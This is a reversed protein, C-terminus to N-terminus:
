AVEVVRVMGPLWVGLRINQAIRREAGRRTRYECADTAFTTFGGGRAVYADAGGSRFAVTRSQVKLLFTTTKKTM